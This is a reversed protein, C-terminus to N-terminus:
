PDKRSEILSVIEKVIKEKHSWVIFHNEGELILTRVTDANVLKEKAYALNDFPVLVDLTGHMLSVPIRIRDWDDEIMMLDNKLPMLEENSVRLPIPWLQKLIPLNIWKRWKARPELEPSVSGAIIGLGSVKGYRRMANYVIIPGGYSHGVLWYREYPLSRMLETLVYSQATLSKETRGFGSHGFGPRDYSILDALSLLTTDVMYELFADMSGPSGHVFLIADKKKSGDSCLLYNINRNPLKLTDLVGNIHHQSLFTEIEQDSKRMKM